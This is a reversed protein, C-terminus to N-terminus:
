IYLNSESELEAQRKFEEMKNYCHFRDKLKGLWPLRYENLLRILTMSEQCRSLKKLNGNKNRDVMM